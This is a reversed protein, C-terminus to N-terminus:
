LQRMQEKGCRSCSRGQIRVGPNIVRGLWVVDGTGSVWRGWDHFGFRCRRM